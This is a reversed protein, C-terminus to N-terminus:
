TLVGPGEGFLTLGRVGWQRSDLWADGVVVLFPPALRCWSRWSYLSPPVPYVQGGMLFVCMFVTIFFYYVLRNFYIYIYIYIYISILLSKSSYTQQNTYHCKNLIYTLGQSPKITKIPWSVNFPRMNPLEKNKGNLNPNTFEFADTRWRMNSTTTIWKTNLHSTNSNISRLSVFFQITIHSDCWSQNKKIYLVQM